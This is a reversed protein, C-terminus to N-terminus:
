ETSSPILGYSSIIFLDRKRAPICPDVTPPGSFHPKTKTLPPCFKLFHARRFFVSIVDRIDVNPISSRAELGARRCRTVCDCRCMNKILTEQKEEQRTWTCALPLCFYTAFLGVMLWGLMLIMVGYHHSMQRISFVFQTFTFLYTIWCTASCDTTLQLRM